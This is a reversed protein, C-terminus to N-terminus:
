NSKLNKLSQEMAFQKRTQRDAETFVRLKVVEMAGIIVGSAVESRYENVLAGLKDLFEGEPGSIEESM